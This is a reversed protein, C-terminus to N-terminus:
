CEVGGGGAHEAGGVAGAGDRAADEAARGVDLRMRAIQRALEGADGYAADDLALVPHQAEHHRYPSLM